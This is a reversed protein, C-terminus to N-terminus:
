SERALQENALSQRMRGAIGYAQTAFSEVEGSSKELAARAEDRERKIQAIEDVPSMNGEIGLTAMAAKRWVDLVTMGGDAALDNPDEEIMTRVLQRLRDNVAWLREIENLAKRYESQAYDVRMWDYGDITMRPLGNAIHAGAVNEFIM